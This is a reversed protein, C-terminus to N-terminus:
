ARARKAAGPDNRRRLALVLLVIVVPVLGSLLVTALISENVEISSAGPNRFYENLRHAASDAEPELAYSAVLVGREYGDALLYVDCGGRRGSTACVSRAGHITSEPISFASNGIVGFLRTGRVTCAAAPSRVCSVGNDTPGSLGTLLFAVVLAVAFAGIVIMFFKANQGM